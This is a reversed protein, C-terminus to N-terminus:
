CSHLIIPSIVITPILLYIHIVHFLTRVTCFENSSFCANTLVAECIKLFNFLVKEEAETLYNTGAQTKLVGTEM